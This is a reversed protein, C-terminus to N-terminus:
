KERTINDPTKPINIRRNSCRKTRFNMLNNNRSVLNKKQKISYYNVYTVIYM